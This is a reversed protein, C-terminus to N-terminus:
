ISRVCTDCDLNLRRQLLSPCSMVPRQASPDCRSPASTNLGEASRECMAILSDLAAALVSNFEDAGDHATGPEYDSEFSEVVELLARM